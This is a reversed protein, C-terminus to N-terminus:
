LVAGCKWSFVFQLFNRSNLQCWIQKWVCIIAHIFIGHQYMIQPNSQNSQHALTFVIFWHQQKAPFGLQPNQHLVSFNSDLSKTRMMLSAAIQIGVWNSYKKKNAYIPMAWCCGTDFISVPVFLHLRYRNLPPLREALCCCGVVLFGCFGSRCEGM